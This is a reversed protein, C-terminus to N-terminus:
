LPTKREATGRALQICDRIQVIAILVMSVLLGASIIWKPWGLTLFRSFRATGIQAWASYIIAACFVVVILRSLMQFYVPLRGPLRDIFFNVGFMQGNIAAGVLGFWVVGTFALIAIDHAAHLPLGFVGRAIVNVTVVLIVVALLVAPLLSGVAELIHDVWKMGLKKRM